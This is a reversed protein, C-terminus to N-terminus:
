YKIHKQFKPSTDYHQKSYLDLRINQDHSHVMNLKTRHIFSHNINHSHSTNADSLGVWLLQVITTKKDVKLEQQILKRM